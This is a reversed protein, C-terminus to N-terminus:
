AGTTTCAILDAKSLLRRRSKFLTEDIVLLTPLWDVSKM